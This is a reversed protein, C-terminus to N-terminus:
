LDFDGNKVSLVFAAWEDPTIALIEDPNNSSRVMVVDHDRGCTSGECCQALGVEVCGGSDCQKAKIWQM